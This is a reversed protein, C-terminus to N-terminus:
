FDVALVDELRGTRRAKRMAEANRNAGAAAQGPKHPAVPPAKAAKAKAAAKAKEAAMGKRAWDLAVFLRHDTVTRLEEATFGLEQATTTAGEWFRQKGEQTATEPIAEALKRSEEALLARHDEEHLGQTIQKPQGGIEILKQVQALAADYQAKARTYAAPDRLALGTDPEAPIMSALHDIFAQTIGEIRSADAEVRKRTESLEQTKRSYDSQRLYGKALEGVTTETGDALTVKATADARKPEDEPEAEAEPQEGEAEEPQGEAEGEGEETAGEEAEPTEPTEDDGPEWYDFDIATDTAPTEVSETGAEAPTDTEDTM